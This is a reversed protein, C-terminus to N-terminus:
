MSLTYTDSVASPLSSAGTTMWKLTLSHTGCCHKLLSRSRPRTKPTIVLWRSRCLRVICTTHSHSHAGLLWRARMNRLVAGVPLRWYEHNQKIKDSYGSLFRALPNRVVAVRTWEPDVLRDAVVSDPQMWLQKLGNRKWSHLWDTDNTDWHGLGSLRIAQLGCHLM